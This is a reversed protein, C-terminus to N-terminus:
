DQALLGNTSTSNYILHLPYIHILQVTSSRWACTSLAKHFELLNVHSIVRYVHYSERYVLCYSSFTSCLLASFDKRNTGWKWRFARKFTTRRAAANQLFYNAFFRFHGVPRGVSWGLKRMCIAPKTVGSKPNRDENRAGFITTKLPTQSFNPDWFPLKRHPKPGFVIAARRGRPM